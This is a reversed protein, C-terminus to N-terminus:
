QDWPSVGKEVADSFKLNMRTVPRVRKVLGYHYGMSAKELPVIRERPVSINLEVTDIAPAVTHPSDPPDMGPVVTRSSGKQGVALHASGSLPVQVQVWIAPVLRGSETRRSGEAPGFTVTKGPISKALGGHLQNSGHEMLSEQLNKWQTMLRTRGSELLRMYEAFLEDTHHRRYDPRQILTLYEMIFRAYEPTGALHAFVRNMLKGDLEAHDRWSQRFLCAVMSTRKEAQFCQEVNRQMLELDQIQESLNKTKEYLSVASEARVTAPLMVILSLL